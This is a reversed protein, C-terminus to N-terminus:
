RLAHIDEEEFLEPVRKKARKVEDLKRNEKINRILLAVLPIGGGILIGGTVIYALLDQNM